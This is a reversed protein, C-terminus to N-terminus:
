PSEGANGPDGANEANGAEESPSEPIATAFYLIDSVPREKNFDIYNYVSGCFYLEGTQGGDLCYATQVPKWAFHEGFQNVTWRAERNGHSLAMYLYHREGIQGIGARSYGEMAEGIPYWTHSVAEGNEVLVPGFAVSFLIDNEQVFAEISEPTNEEGLHKILFDGAKNVFLTDVVNYQLCDAMVYGTNFRCLERNWVVIGYDRPLYYDANVTVVANVEEAMASAYYLNPSGFSDDALKRRFQSADAVKVEAFSCCMGDMNEKWLIAMISDDLYYEFNRAFSGQYFNADPDFAVVEEAGLLGSDRARQILAMVTATDEVPCTGYCAENPVPAALADEPISYHPAPEPEPEEPPAPVPEPEASLEGSVDEAEDPSEDNPIEAEGGSLGAEATEPGPIATEAAAPTKAPPDATRVAARMLLLGVAGALLVLFIICFLIQKRKM